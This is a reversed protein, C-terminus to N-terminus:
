SATKKGSRIVKFAAVAIGCGLFINIPPSMLMSMVSGVAAVAETVGNSDGEAAHAILPFAVTMVSAGGSAIAVKARLSAAGVKEVMEKVM